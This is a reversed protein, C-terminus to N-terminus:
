FRTGASFRFFETKDEEQKILPAAFNFRVPGFPSSWFVTAGAAARLKLDGDVSFDGTADTAGDTFATYSENDLGWLTGVDAFLGGFIGYEEPLGLPFSVDARAVAYYNGGLSDDVNVLFNSDGDGDTDRGVTNTDRPGIGSNEFGRFSDGGLKFRDGIKVDDAGDLGIIGGGALELSTVVEERFFSTYGKVSAESKVYFADGGLGAVNTNASFRVGETPENKDNRLDLTYGIGLSSILRAGEDAEILPSVDNPTDRIDENQILYNLSISSDEDLPFAVRPRFGTRRTDFSSEDQNDEEVHFLDVGARLNRDLFYPETFRFEFFQRSASATFGVKVFQGRGLFNRETLSIQGGVSDASSFGFGFSIDGTSQEEVKTKVVVRDPASGRETTVDASKFYGLRRINGRSQQLRFANFADGEVFEFERRIVRDLTRSNGEIEIREVYVRPAEVVRYVLDITPAEGEAAPPNKKAEPRVDIFNIGESGAQNQIQRVTREVLDADYTDGQDTEVLGDFQAADLGDIMSVLQVEGTDYRPGESVTFTIFFGDREPSLEAVASVVEFDAYGRSFYFRRLLEKDFELRDPNYNDSTALVKWWASEATEIVGRLRRDGYEENGVFNIASVGVADGESIEFVLDVRNNDREIIKPEVTASYRGAARYVDLITGADAEARARTFAGRPRSRIQPELVEDKVADNGEFSIQNIIPNEDVVVELVGGERPTIRVDRFLGTAFLRKLADNISAADAEDGVGIQMYSLITEREIRQAGDVDIRTVTQGLAASQAVAVSAGGVLGAAGVGGIVLAAAALLGACRGGRRSFIAM